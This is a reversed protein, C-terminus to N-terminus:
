RLEEHIYVTYIFYAISPSSFTPVCSSVQQPYTGKLKHSKDWVHLKLRTQSSNTPSTGAVLILLFIPCDFVLDSQKQLLNNKKHACELVQQVSPSIEGPFDQPSTGENTGVLAMDSYSEVKSM